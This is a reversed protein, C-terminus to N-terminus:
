AVSHTQSWTYVHVHTDMGTYMYTSSSHTGTCIHKHMHKLTHMHIHTTHLRLNDTHMCELKYSSIAVSPLCDANGGSDILLSIFLFQLLVRHIIALSKHLLHNVLQYSCGFLHFIYWKNCNAVYEAWSAKTIPYWVPLLFKKTSLTLSTFRQQQSVEVNHDQALSIGRHENAQHQKVNLHSCSHLSTIDWKMASSAWYRKFPFFSFNPKGKMHKYVKICYINQIASGLCPLLLYCGWIHSTEPNVNGIPLTTESVALVKQLQPFFNCKVIEPCRWIGELWCLFKNWHATATTLKGM